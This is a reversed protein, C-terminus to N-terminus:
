EAKKANKTVREMLTTFPYFLKEQIEPENLSVNHFRTLLETFGLEWIQRRMEQPYFKSDVTSALTKLYDLYIRTFENLCDEDVVTFEKRLKDASSILDAYPADFAVSDQALVSIELYFQEFTPHKFNTQILPIPQLHSRASLRMSELRGGSNIREFVFLIQDPGSYTGSLVMWRKVRGLITIVGIIKGLLRSYYIEASNYKVELSNIQGVFSVVTSAELAFYEWNGRDYRAFDRVQSMLESSATQPDFLAMCKILTHAASRYEDRICLTEEVDLAGVAEEVFASNRIHDHIKEVDDDTLKRGIKEEILGKQNLILKRAESKSSVNARIRLGGDEQLEFSVESKRKPKAGKEITYNTETAIKPVEKHRQGKFQWANMVYKTYPAFSNDIQSYASNCTDCILQGTKHTGGWCSTFIHEHNKAPLTGSCYICGSLLKAQFPLDTESTFHNMNM